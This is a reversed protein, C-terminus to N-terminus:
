GTSPGLGVILDRLPKERASAADHHQLVLQRGHLFISPGARHWKGARINRLEQTSPLFENGM